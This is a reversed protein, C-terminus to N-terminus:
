GNGSAPSCFSSVGHAAGFLQYGMRLHPPLARSVCAPIMRLRDGSVGYGMSFRLAPQRSVYAAVPQGPYGAGRMARIVREDFARRSEGGSRSIGCVCLLSSLECM